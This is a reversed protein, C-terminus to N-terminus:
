NKVRKISCGIAKTEAPDCPKGAVMASIANTLYPEKVAEMQKMNDDIAGKYALRLTGNFLFVDPTKTAGFADALVHDKDMVYPYDGYGLEKAHALMAELSDDDGRKAENSNVLIFGVNNKKCFTALDNYRNEWGIVYPCTNCSFVVCLGNAGKVDNLSFSRGDTNRMKLETSPAADGISLQKLESGSFLSMSMTALAFLLIKM